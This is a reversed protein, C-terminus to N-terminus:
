FYRDLATCAASLLALRVGWGAGGAGLEEGLSRLEAPFFLIESGLRPSRPSLLPLLAQLPFTLGSGTWAASGTPGAPPLRAARSTRPSSQTKPNLRGVWSPHPPPTVKVESRGVDRDGRVPPGIVDSGQGEARRRQALLAPLPYSVPFVWFEGPRAAPSCLVPSAPRTRIRPGGPGAGCCAVSPVPCGAVATSVAPDRDSRLADDRGRGSGSSWPGCRRGFGCGSGRM